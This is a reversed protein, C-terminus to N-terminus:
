AAVEQVLSDPELKTCTSIIEGLTLIVRGGIHRRGASNAMMVLAWQPEVNLPIGLERLCENWFGSAAVSPTRVGSSSPNRLYIDNTCAATFEATRGISETLDYDEVLDAIALARKLGKVTWQTVYGEGRVELFTSLWGAEILLTGVSQYTSFLKLESKM